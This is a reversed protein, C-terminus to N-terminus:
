SISKIIYIIFCPMAQSDEIAAQAEALDIANAPSKLSKTSKKGFNNGFYM